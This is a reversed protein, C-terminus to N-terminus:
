FLKPREHRQAEVLNYIGSELRVIFREPGADLCSSYFYNHEQVTLQGNVDLGDNVIRKCAAFLAQQPSEVKDKEQAATRRSEARDVSWSPATDWMGLSLVFLTFGITGWVMMKM